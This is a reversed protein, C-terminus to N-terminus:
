INLAERLQEELEELNGINVIQIDAMDMVALLHQEHEAGELQKDEWTCFKEFTDLNDGRGRRQLREYRLERPADVSILIFGPLRQLVKLEALTRISEFVANKPADEQCKRLLLEAFYGPGHQARMRNAYEMSHEITPDMGQRSVEHRILDGFSYHVFGHRKLMRVIEGKGSAFTGTIGVYM